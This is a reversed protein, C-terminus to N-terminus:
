GRRTATAPRLHQAFWNGALEAVHGLTGSEEFLHTAGPVIELARGVRHGSEVVVRSHGFPVWDQDGSATAGYPYWAVGGGPTIRVKGDFFAPSSWSGSLGFNDQLRHVAMGIASGVNSLPEVPTQAGAGAASLVLTMAAIGVLQPIVRPFRSMGCTKGPRSWLPFQGFTLAVCAIGFAGTIRTIRADNM